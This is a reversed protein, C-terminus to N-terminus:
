GGLPAEKARLAADVEDHLWRAHLIGGIWVALWLLACATSLTPDEDEGLANLYGGLVVTSLYIASWALWDRRRARVGAYLFLHARPM